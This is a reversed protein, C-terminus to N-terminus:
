LNGARIEKRILANLSSFGEITEGCKDWASKKKQIYASVRNKLECPLPRDDGGAKSTDDHNGYIPSKKKAADLARQLATKESRNKTRGLESMTIALRFADDYKIMLRREVDSLNWWWRIDEDRVGEARKGPLDRRIREALSNVAPEDSRAKDLIIDGFNRPLCYRGEKRSEEIAADVIERAKELARSCPMGMLTGQLACQGLLTYEVQSYKQLLDIAVM